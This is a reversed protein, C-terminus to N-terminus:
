FYQCSLFIATNSPIFVIINIYVTETMKKCKFGLSTIFLYHPLEIQKSILAGVCRNVITRSKTNCNELIVLVCRTNLNNNKEWSGRFLCLNCLNQYFLCSM